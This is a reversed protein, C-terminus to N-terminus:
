WEGATLELGVAVALPGVYLVEAHNYDTM